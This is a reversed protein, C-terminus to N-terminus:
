SGMSTERVVPEFNMYIIALAMKPMLGDRSDLPAVLSSNNVFTSLFMINRPYVLM